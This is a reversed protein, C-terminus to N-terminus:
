VASKFLSKYTNSANRLSLIRDLKENRHRAAELKRKLTSSCALRDQIFHKLAMSGVTRSWIDVVLKGQCLETAGYDADLMAACIAILCRRLSPSALALPMECSPEDPCADELTLAPTAFRDFLEDRLGARRRARALLLCITSTEDLLQPATTDNFRFQDPVKGTLADRLAAEFGAIM